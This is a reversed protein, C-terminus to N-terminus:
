TQSDFYHVERAGPKSTKQYNSNLNHGQSTDTDASIAMVVPPSIALIDTFNPFNIYSSPALSNLNCELEVICISEKFLPYM